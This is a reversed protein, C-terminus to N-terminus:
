WDRSAAFRPLFDFSAFPKSSGGTVFLFRQRARIRPELKASRVWLSAAVFLCIALVIAKSSFPLSVDKMEGLTFPARGITEVACYPAAQAAIIEGADCRSAFSADFIVGAANLILLVILLNFLFRIM